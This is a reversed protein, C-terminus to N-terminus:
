EGESRNVSIVGPIAEIRVFLRSLQQIDTTYVTLSVTARPHEKHEESTISHINIHEDSVIATIDRLLGVRDTAVLQLRTPTMASSRGWGVDVMREPESHLRLNHCGARHVSVGRGRTQYGVVDDGYTPNCCHALHPDGSGTGIDVEGGSDKATPHTNLPESITPPRVNDNGVMPHRLVVRAMEKSGLQGTGIAEAALDVSEFGLLTAVSQESLKLDLRNIETRLIEQGRAVNVDREQRRFWQRIKQKAHATRAFGLDPNLWEIRPGRPSRAKSIEVIDANTLSTNLPVMRGNVIAAVCDHGLDTHVRYAFDIPTSGAPLQKVERAPTYVFLQDGLIDTKVTDLYEEDGNLGMWELLQRLWAMKQDFREDDQSGDAQSKYAWHAAIGEDASRHMQKTRIQVEVPHNELCIVTTHLSQYLNEKPSSIYDDFQGPVPSWLGHIMGLAVYCDNQSDVIVRLGILDHIDDFRMGQHAYRRMKNHISYLHKPRGLVHANINSDNLKEQLIQIAQDVYTEREVRKRAVLRSTARYERPMLYRFSQDELRWKFDWCGLRHALPAYIDFTEQAIRAQRDPPLPSLTMMNHLRDALKILIVRVDQAMAVFMKRLSASHASSLSIHSGDLGNPKLVTSQDPSSLDLRKLKTVGDVLASVEPGFLQLLVELDM